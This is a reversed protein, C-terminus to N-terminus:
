NILYDKLFTIVLEGITEVDTTTTTVPPQGYALTNYNKNAYAYEVAERQLKSDVHPMNRAPSKKSSDCSLIYEVSFPNAHKKKTATATNHYNDANGTPAQKVFDGMNVQKGGNEKHQQDEGECFTMQM